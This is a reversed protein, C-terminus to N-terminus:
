APHRAAILVNKGIPPPIVREVARTVPIGIRDYLRTMRPDLERKGGITNVLWWPLIGLVDMYRAVIVAFGAAEVQRRMPTLHYRRYHELVEDLASYFFSLAPVFLLLHGGPRLIRYFESLARDDDEIHELVNVLVITDRSADAM